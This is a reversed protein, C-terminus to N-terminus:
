IVRSLVSYIIIGYLNKALQANLSDGNVCADSKVALLIKRLQDDFTLTPFIDVRKITSVTPIVLANDMINKSFYMNVSMRWFM